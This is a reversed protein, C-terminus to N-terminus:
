GRPWLTRSQSSASVDSGTTDVTVQHSSALASLAVLLGAIFSISHRPMSM